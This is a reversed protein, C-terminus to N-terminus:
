WFFFSKVKDALREFKNLVIKFHLYICPTCHAVRQSCMECFLTHGDMPLHFRCFVLPSFLNFFFFVVVFM